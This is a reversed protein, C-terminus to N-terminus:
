SANRVAAFRWREDWDDGFWYLDLDRGGGDWRLYPVRRRGGPDQWVSGLAVIPFQKQLEPYEAGLALLDEILAPRFGAKRM